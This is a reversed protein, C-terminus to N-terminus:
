RGRGLHASRRTRIGTRSAPAHHADPPHRLLVSGHCTRARCPTVSACCCAHTASWPARQHRVAAGSARPREVRRRWLWAIPDGGTGLNRRMMQRPALLTGRRHLKWRRTRRMPMRAGDPRHAARGGSAGIPEHPRVGPWAAAGRREVRDGAPMTEEPAEEGDEISATDRVIGSTMAAADDPVSRPPGRRRVM